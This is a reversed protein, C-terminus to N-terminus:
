TLAYGREVFALVEFEVCVLEIRGSCVGVGRLDLTSRLGAGSLDLGGGAWLAKSTDEVRGSFDAGSGRTM